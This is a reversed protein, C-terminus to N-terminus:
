DALKRIWVQYGKELVALKHAYCSLFADIAPKPTGHLNFAPDDWLYDDFGILGGTKVRRFVTVADELVDCAWHSGDIYAFDFTAPPVSHLVDRSYGIRVDARLEAGAERLNERLVHQEFIDISLLRAQPHTLINTLLWTASRGEHTGIELANAPKGAFEGLLRQFLPIHVSFWDYQFQYTM